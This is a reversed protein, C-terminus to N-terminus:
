EKSNPIMPSPAATDGEGSDSADPPPVVKMWGMSCRKVYPYYGQPNQCYYWYTQKEPAPASQIYTQPQQEIVVPPAVYYPYVSPGWWGPGWAGWGPGIWAGGYYGPWGWGGGGYYRPGGWAGGRYGFSVGGGGYYGYSGGGRGGGGHSWQDASVTFVTTSLLVLVSFILRLVRKM